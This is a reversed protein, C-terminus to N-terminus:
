SAEKGPALLMQQRTRAMPEPARTPATVTGEAQLAAKGTTGSPPSWPRQPHPGRQQTCLQWIFGPSQRAALLVQAPTPRPLFAESLAPYQSSVCNGAPLTRPPRSGLVGLMLGRLPDVQIQRTVSAETPHGRPHRYVSQSPWQPRHNLLAQAPTPAPTGPSPRPSILLGSSAKGQSSQGPSHGQRHCPYWTAAGEPQAAWPGRQEWLAVEASPLHPRHEPLISGTPVNRPRLVLLLVFPSPAPSPHGRPTALRGHRAGEWPRRPAAIFHSGGQSADCRPAPEERPPVEWGSTHGLAGDRRAASLSGLGPPLPLLEGKSCFDSAPAPSKCGGM